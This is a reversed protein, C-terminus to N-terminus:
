REAALRHLPLRQRRHDGCRPRIARQQHESRLRHCRGAATHGPRRSHPRLVQRRRGKGTWEKAFNGVATGQATHASSGTPPPATPAPSTPVTTTASSTQRQDAVNRLASHGVEDLQRQAAQLSGRHQQWEATFREADAGRWISPLSGVLRDVQTAITGISTAQRSLQRGLNEVDDVDMGFFGM